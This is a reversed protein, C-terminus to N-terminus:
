FDMLSYRKALGWIVEVAQYKNQALDAFEKFRQLEKRVIHRETEFTPSSRAIGYTIPPVAILDHVVSFEKDPAKRLIRGRRQIFERPNSSSALIYATKTSPVDVGEDLCKMAVLGQLKGDAFDTLLQRREKTNEEATFRHILIGKERGLLYLVDEIQEPSCYFLTQDIPEQEDVLGALCALKNKANNLLKARKILLIDLTQQARTDESHALRAIKSSLLQYQDLEEEDLSVLHPYYYYPTLSVGIAKELPFSFVTEGFFARLAKTGEDDFWRDPTASLALRNPIHEPYSWRSKQAGLHHAEDAILLTHEKLLAISKQFEPSAFTTHTTIVCVFNRYGSNYEMVQHNLDMLWINKNKYALIPRYGFLKAQEYWQDVLHQYPVTIVLAIQKERKCLEISAALSTITKGTGTAMELLGRYQNKKWAEIADKQYGHLAISAPVDPYSLTYKQSAERIHPPKIWDPKAYPREGTRLQLIKERAAEPLDFVKVNADLNNWLREFRQLDDQVLDNFDASHWSCFVKISEYNRTGQISDNYSGNFSVHDGQTDTFIGFKDHFDGQDLKGHPLALKFSLIEDAVMWALASLTDKELTEELTTINRELTSHLVPDTRAANGTALAIWDAEDLIPSTIWRARGRNNAFTVMGKINISLWGSSFFGVGRDYLISNSLLPVFFDKTLDHKSTDVVSPLNL